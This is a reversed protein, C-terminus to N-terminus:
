PSQMFIQSSKMGFKPPLLVPKQMVVCRRVHGKEGPFSQRGGGLRSAQSPGKVKKTEGISSLISIGGNQCSLHDLCFRLRHQVSECFVAELIVEVFLLLEPFVAYARVSVVELTITALLGL